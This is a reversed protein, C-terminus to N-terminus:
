YVPTYVGRNFDTNIVHIVGNTPRINSTIISKGGNLLIRYWDSSPQTNDAVELLRFYLYYGPKLTEVKRDSYTMDISLHEGKCITPMLYEKIESVSFDTIALKGKDSMWKSLVIDNPIIFTYLSDTRSYWSQIGASEIAMYLLYMDKDKRSKIFEYANIGLYPQAPTPKFDYDEQLQLGFLECSSMTISFLAIITYILTKSKM